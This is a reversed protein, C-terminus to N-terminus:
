RYNQISSYVHQPHNNGTSVIFTVAPYTYALEDILAALPLQRKYDKHWVENSNGLSINVVRIHYAPNSLFSEVADKFQHEILKEPDYIASLTGDIPNRKAYM